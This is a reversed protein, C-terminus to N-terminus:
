IKTPQLWKAPPGDKTSLSQSDPREYFHVLNRDDVASRKMESGREEGSDRAVIELICEAKRVQPIKIRVPAVGIGGSSM